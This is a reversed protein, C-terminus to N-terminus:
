VFSSTRKSNELAKEKIIISSPKKSELIKKLATVRKLEHMRQSRIVVYLLIAWLGELGNFVVFFWGLVNGAVPNAYPISVGLLWGIGQTVCSSLLLVVCRKMREYSQHPSTADSVHQVIRKTVLLITCLNLVLFIVVPITMFYHIVDRTFWCIKGRYIQTINLSLNSNFGAAFSVWTISIFFSIILMVGLGRFSPEPFLLVFRLYNFYGVSTKVCFMFILFFYVFFMLVSASPFCRTGSQPQRTYVTMGLAIYFVFLLTTAAFSILSLVDRAMIMHLPNFLRVVLIHVIIALFCAISLSQFVLSAIDQADLKDSTGNTALSKPLFILAFSTLHDCSCEFRNFQTNKIPKTCGSQNWGNIRNDYFSCLYDEESTSNFNTPVPYFFTINMPTVTSGNRLVAVQVISSALTENSVNNLIKLSTSRPIIFMNLFTVVGLSEESIIASTSLNNKLIDGKNKNNVIQGGFGTNSAFSGGIVTVSNNQNPKQSM